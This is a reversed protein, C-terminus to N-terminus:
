CCTSFLNTILLSGMFFFGCSYAIVPSHWWINVSFNIADKVFEEWFCSPVSGLEDWSDLCVNFSFLVM